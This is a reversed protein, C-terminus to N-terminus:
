FILVDSWTALKFFRRLGAIVRMQSVCTRKDTEPVSDQSLLQASSPRALGSGPDM